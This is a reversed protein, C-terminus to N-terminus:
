ANTFGTSEMLLMFRVSTKHAGQSIGPTAAVVCLAGFLRINRDDPTIVDPLKDNDCMVVFDRPVSSRVKVPVFHQGGFMIRILEESVEIMQVGLFFRFVRVVRFVSLEFSKTRASHNVAERVAM